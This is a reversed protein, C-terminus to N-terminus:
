GDDNGRPREIWRVCPEVERKEDSDLNFSDGCVKMTSSFVKKWLFCM